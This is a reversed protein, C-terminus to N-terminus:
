YKQPQFLEMGFVFHEMELLLHGTDFLFRGMEQKSDADAV